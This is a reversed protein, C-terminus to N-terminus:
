WRRTKRSHERNGHASAHYRRRKDEGSTWRFGSATGAAYTAFGSGHAKRCMTCHCNALMTLPGDLEWSVDGCLCQAKYM